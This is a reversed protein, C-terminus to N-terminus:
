HTRVRKYIKFYGFLSAVAIAVAVVAAFTMPLKPLQKLSLEVHLQKFARRQSRSVIVMSMKKKGFSVTSGLELTYLNKFTLFLAEIKM